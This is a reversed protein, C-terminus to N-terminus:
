RTRRDAVGTTSRRATPSRSATPCHARPASFRSRRAASSAPGPHPSPKSPPRASYRSTGDGRSSTGIPSRSGTCRPAARRIGRQRRVARDLALQPAERRSRRDDHDTDAAEAVDGDLDQARQEAARITAISRRSPERTARARRPRAVDREVCGTEVRAVDARLRAALARRDDEVEDAVSASTSSAAATRAVPRGRSCRRRRRRCTGSRRRCPAARTRGRAPRGPARQGLQVLHDRERARTRDLDLDLSSRARPHSRRSDAVRSRRRDRTPRHDDRSRECPFTATTM